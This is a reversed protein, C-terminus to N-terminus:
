HNFNVNFLIYMLINNNNNFNLTKYLIRNKIKINRDHSM